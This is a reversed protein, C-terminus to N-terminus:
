KQPAKVKESAIYSTRIEGYDEWYKEFITDMRTTTFNYRMTMKSQIEKIIILM